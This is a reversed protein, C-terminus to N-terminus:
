KAPPKASAPESSQTIPRMEKIMEDTLQKSRESVRKMALPMYEKMIAPQEDLLHQGPPSSYFAIFADVDSRSMHRRYIESVDDIMADVPYVELALKMYKQQVAELRKQEEPTPQRGGPLGSALQRTQAAVQGQIMEPLTKMASALQQRLRMVELLKAVQEKSAWDEPPIKSTASQQSAGEDNPKIPQDQAVSVVSGLGAALLMVVAIRNAKAM